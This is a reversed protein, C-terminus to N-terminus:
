QCNDDNGTAALGALDNGAGRNSREGNYEALIARRRCGRQSWIITAAPCGISGRGIRWVADDVDITFEGVGDITIRYSHTSGGCDRRYEPWISARNGFLGGGGGITQSDKRDGHLGASNIM